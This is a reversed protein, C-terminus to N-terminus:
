ALAKKATKCLPCNNCYETPDTALYYYCCTKRIRVSTDGEEKISNKFYFPAIPNRDLGYIESSDSSLLYLFDSEAKKKTTEDLGSVIVRREYISFVRVAINEWLISESVGTLKRLQRVLLTLNGSFAKTLRRKRWSDRGKEPKSIQTTKLPFQSKWLRNELPYEFICNNISVDLGKDYRSMGYLFSALTLFAIRKMVLSATVRLTSAGLAPMITNLTKLCLEDDLLKQTDISDSSRTEIGRLGLTSLADWERDTLSNM